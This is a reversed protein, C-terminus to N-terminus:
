VLLKYHHIIWCYANYFTM